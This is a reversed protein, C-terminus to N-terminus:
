QVPATLQKVVSQANSVNRGATVKRFAAIAQNKIHEANAAGEIKENYAVGVWYHIDSRGEDTVQAALAEDYIEIM